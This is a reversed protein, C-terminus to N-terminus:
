HRGTRRTAALADRYPTVDMGFAGYRAEVAAITEECWYESEPQPFGLVARQDLSCRALMKELSHDPSYASWAWGIHLTSIWEARALRYTINHAFRRTGPALPTGRHWTDHRYFLVDGPRYDARIEREYLSGRWPALEPQRLAILGEAAERNNIFEIEGIGPSDVIPWRYAPDNPGQRPVVATRGGCEDADSLYVILEVAEPRSWIPPHALSHNPYDVHIRQDNNDLPDTPRETRGYKPWLDSQTLRLDHPEVGLLQAIAELLRPHLTVANLAANHSPFNGKGFSGFDTFAAAEASGPAPYTSEAFRTLDAILDPEFIGGVLCFGQERWSEVQSAILVPQKGCDTARLTRNREDLENALRHIKHPKPAEQLDSGASNALLDRASPGTNRRAPLSRRM